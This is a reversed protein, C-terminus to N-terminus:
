NNSTQGDTLGGDTILTRMGGMLNGGILRSFHRQSIDSHFTNAWFSTKAM